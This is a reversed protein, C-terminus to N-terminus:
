DSDFLKSAKDSKTEVLSALRIMESREILSDSLTAILEGDEDVVLIEPLYKEYVFDHEPDDFKKELLLLKFQNGSREFNTAFQRYVLNPNFILEANSGRRIQKWHLKGNRTKRLIEDFLAEYKNM